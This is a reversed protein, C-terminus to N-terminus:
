KAHPGDPTPESADQERFGRDLRNMLWTHIAVILLFILLAGQAAFYFGLPFGLFSYQNLVGPAFSAVLTVVFWVLLLSLTIWLTRRWHQRAARGTTIPALGSM